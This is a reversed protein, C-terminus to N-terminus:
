PGAAEGLPVAVAEEPSATFFAATCDRRKSAETVVEPAKWTGGVATGRLKDAKCNALGPAKWDAVVRYVNVRTPQSVQLESEGTEAPDPSEAAVPVVVVRNANKILTSECDASGAVVVDPKPWSGSVAMGELEEVTCTGLSSPWGEAEPILRVQVPEEVANAGPTATALVFGTAAVFVTVAAAIYTDKLREFLVEVEGRNADAVVLRALHALKEAEEQEAPATSTSIEQIRDHLQPLEDLVGGTHASVTQAAREWRLRAGANTWRGDVFHRNRIDLVDSLDAFPVKLVPTARALVTCVALLAAIAAVSALLIRLPSALANGLQVIQIGGVFVPVLAGATGLLWQAAKVTGESSTEMAKVDLGIGAPKSEEGTNDRAEADAM